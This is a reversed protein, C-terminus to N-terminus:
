WFFIMRNNYTNNICSVYIWDALELQKFTPLVDYASTRERM